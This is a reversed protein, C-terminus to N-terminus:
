RRRKRRGALGHHKFLVLEREISRKLKRSTSGSACSFAVTLRGRDNCITMGACNAQKILHTFSPVAKDRERCSVTTKILGAKM